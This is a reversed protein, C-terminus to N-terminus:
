PRIDGSRGIVIGIVDVVNLASQLAAYRSNESILHADEGEIVLRKVYTAGDRRCIVIEGDPRRKSADIAFLVDGALIGAGSMSDDLAQAVITARRERYRIPIEIPDYEAIISVGPPLRREAAVGKSRSPARLIVANPQPEVRRRKTTLWAIHREVEADDDPSFDPGGTLYGATTGTAIALRQLLDYGPGHKGRIIKGITERSTRAEVAIQTRSKGSAKVAADLRKGLELLSDPRTM